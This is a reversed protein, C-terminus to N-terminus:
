GKFYNKRKLYENENECYWNWTAQLGEKLTTEPNYNIIEKANKIDM